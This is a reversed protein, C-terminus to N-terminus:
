QPLLPRLLCTLDGHMSIRFRQRNRPIAFTVCVAQRPEPGTRRDPRKYRQIGTAIQDPLICRSFTIEAVDPIHGCSSVRFRLVELQHSAQYDSRMVTLWLTDKFSGPYRLQYLSQNHAPRGLTQLELRPLFLIKRKEVAAPAHLQGSAEWSTDLCLMHPDIYGGGM